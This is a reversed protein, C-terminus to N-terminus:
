GVKPYPCKQVQHNKLPLVNFWVPQIALYKTLINLFFILQNSPYKGDAMDSIYLHLTFLMKGSFSDWIGGARWHYWSVFCPCWSQLPSCTMYAATCVVFPKVESNGTENLWPFHKKSSERFVATMGFFWRFVFFMHPLNRVVFFTGNLGTYIGVIM